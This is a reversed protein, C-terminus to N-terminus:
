EKRSELAATLADRLRAVDARVEQLEREVVREGLVAYIADVEDGESYDCSDVWEIDHLAKAVLAVHRGFARRLPNPSICLRDAVENVNQYCYDWSGGSM